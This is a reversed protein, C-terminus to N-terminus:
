PEMIQQLVQLTKMRSFDPMHFMYYVEIAELLQRRQLYNMPIETLENPPMAKLLESILKAAHGELYNVHQPYHDTFNGEQLDFINYHEADETNMQFGFFNTLHLSFYLPFNATVAPSAKDLQILAEEVFYFLDPNNEPQKVCKQLLEMMYLLVSNKIVDAFLEEYLYSWRFEKIRQLNKLDHHYVILELIAGPQFYNAKSGGKKTSARVGQVIYSQLGYLETYATVILSTEGYKVTRLIIAKTKHLVNSM